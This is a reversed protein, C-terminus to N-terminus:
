LPHETSEYTGAQRDVVPRAALDPCGLFPGGRHTGHDEGDGGQQKRTRGAQGMGGRGLPESRPMEIVRPTPSTFVAAALFLKAPWAAVVIPPMARVAAPDLGEAPEVAVEGAAAVAGRQLIARRDAAGGEAAAGLRAGEPPQVAVGGRNPRRAVWDVVVSPPCAKPRPACLWTEPPNLESRAAPRKLWASWCTSVMPPQRDAATLEVPDGAAVVAVRREGTPAEPRGAPRGRRRVTIWLYDAAEGSGAGPTGGRLWSSHTM